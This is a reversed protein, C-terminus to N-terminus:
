GPLWREFWAVLRRCAPTFIVSPVPPCTSTTSPTRRCSRSRSSVTRITTRATRGRCRGSPHDWSRYPPGCGGTPSSVALFGAEALATLYPECREKDGSFGHYYLVTGREAAVEPSDGSRVLAPVGAIAVRTSTV